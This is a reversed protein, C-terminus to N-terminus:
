KGGFPVRIPLRLGRSAGRTSSATADSPPKSPTDPGDSADTAPTAQTMVSSSPRGSATVSGGVIMKMGSPVNEIYPPHLLIRPCASNLAPRITKVFGKAEVRIADGWIAHLELMGRDFGEPRRRFVFSLAAKQCDPIRRPRDERSELGTRVSRNM